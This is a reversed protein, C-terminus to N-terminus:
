FGSWENDTTNGPEQQIPIGEKVREVRGASAALVKPWYLAFVAVNIIIFVNKGESHVHLHSLTPFFALIIQSVM